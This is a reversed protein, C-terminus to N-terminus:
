DEYAEPAYARLQLELDNKCWPLGNAQLWSLLPEGQGALDGCANVPSEWYPPNWPTVLPCHWPTRAGAECSEYSPEAWTSQPLSPCAMKVTCTPTAPAYSIAPAQSSHSTSAQPSLSCDQGLIDNWTVVNRGGRQILSSSAQTSLGAFKSPVHPHSFIYDMADASDALRPVRLGPQSRSAWTGAETPAKVNRKRRRARRKSQASTESNQGDNEYGKSVATGGVAATASTNLGNADGDPGESDDVNNESELVLMRSDILDSWQVLRRKPSKPLRSSVQCSPSSQSTVSESAAADESSSVDTSEAEEPSAITEAVKGSVPEALTCTAVTM